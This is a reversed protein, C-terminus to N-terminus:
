DDRGEPRPIGRKNLYEELYDAVDSHGFRNAEGVPTFKWRDQPDPDVEASELLFKVCELQGEAAAVHLATRGDYDTTNLDIGQLHHRKLASLDGLTAAFLLTVTSLSKSALNHKTPDQKKESYRLNDFRHFNFRDVLEQSLQVGRATNGIEDLPPSWLAIAMTNPIVLVLSGSVGSKAPLGVRFAFKGSYNYMGCSYMLSLTDRVSSASLVKDGTTPCIGGNALTAGMVALGETDVEMSCFQFYLDMWEHLEKSSNITEPFCKYDKMYYAMAYNRDATDRESLFVANNFGVNQNGTLRRFYNQFFEFKESLPMEPRM